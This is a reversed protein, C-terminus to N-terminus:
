PLQNVIPTASRIPAANQVFAKARVTARQEADLTQVNKDGVQSYTEVSRDFAEVEVGAFKVFEMTASALASDRAEQESGMAKSQGSVWVFGDKRSLGKDLWGPREKPRAELEVETIAGACASLGVLIIGLYKM